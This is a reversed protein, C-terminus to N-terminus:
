LVVVIVVGIVRLIVLLQVISPPPSFRSRPHCLICHLTCQPICHLADCLARIVCSAACHAGGSCRPIRGRWSKVGPARKESKAPFRKRRRAKILCRKMNPRPHIPLPPLKARPPPLLPSLPPCLLRWGMDPLNPGFLFVKCLYVFLLCEDAECINM